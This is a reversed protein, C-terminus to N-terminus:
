TNLVCMYKFTRLNSCAAQFILPSLSRPCMNLHILLYHGVPVVSLATGQVERTTCHILIWRDICPDCTRGRTPSSEVPQLAVLRTCWLVQACVRAGRLWLYQRLDKRPSPLVLLIFLSAFMRGQCGLIRRWLSAAQCLSYTLFVMPCHGPYGGTLRALM